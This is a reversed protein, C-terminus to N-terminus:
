VGVRTANQLYMRLEPILAVMVKEVIMEFSADGIGINVHPLDDHQVHVHYYSKETGDSSNWVATELCVRVGSIRAGKFLDNIRSLNTDM